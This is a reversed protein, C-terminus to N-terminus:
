NIPKVIIQHGDIHVIRVKTGVDVYDGLTKAEFEGSKFLVRGVPRLTSRTTGEDGVALADVTGENVKSSIASKNAFRMWARSRFSFFLTVATGAATGILVYLGTQSGYNDYSTYVAAGLLVVGLIGILTTGPIFVVEIIVLALGILILAFILYWM